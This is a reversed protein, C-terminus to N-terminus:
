KEKFNNCYCETDVKTKFNNYNCIGKNNIYVDDYSFYSCNICIDSLSTM